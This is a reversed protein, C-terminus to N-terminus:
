VPTFFLLTRGDFAIWQKEVDGAVSRPVLSNPYFLWSDPMARFFYHVRL